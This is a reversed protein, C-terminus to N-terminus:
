LKIETLRIPWIETANIEKACKTRVGHSFTAETTLFVEVEVQAHRLNQACDQKVKQWIWKGREASGSLALVVSYFPGM